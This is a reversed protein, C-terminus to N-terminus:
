GARAAVPVRQVRRGSARYWAAFLAIALLLEAFDGGYYMIRAADRIEGPDHHVGRPWGYAYMAKALTGHAAIAVFLACLRVRLSARHPAPDQGVVAWTFLYGALLFHLHVAAGLLRSHHTAAYLPTLYLLYLAGVDLLLAVAPHTLRRCLGGRLVRSVRRAAPVPLTRLLLTLPAGMVLALPALMGLLLHRAMHGRLDHHAWEVVLPSTAVALLVLGAVFSATRGDGWGRGRRRERLSAVLYTALLGLLIAWAALTAEM